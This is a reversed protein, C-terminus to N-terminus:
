KEENQIRRTAIDLYESFLDIGICQRQLRQCAVATTGSGLFPDFILMNSNTSAELMRIFLSLPKQTPHKGFRKEIQKIVPTSWVDTMQKGHNRERMLQYNFFQYSKKSKKAWILTETSHTFMRCSLNPPPNLKQWTINNLIHYNFKKLLYGIEFINHMSGFVWLTGDPKLIRKAETLFISNFQETNEYEDSLKDWNGKNVSVKKGGRNSFGDNSLFYPPDAIIVDVSNSRMLKMLKLSDGQYLRILDNKYYASKM